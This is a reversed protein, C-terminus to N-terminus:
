HSVIRQLIYLKNEPVEMNRTRINLSFIVVMEQILRNM